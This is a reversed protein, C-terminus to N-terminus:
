SRVGNLERGRKTGGGSCDAPAQEQRGFRDAVCPRRLALRLPDARCSLLLSGQENPSVLDRGVQRLATSGNDRKTTM